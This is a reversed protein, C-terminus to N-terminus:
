VLGGSVSMHLRVSSFVGLMCRMAEKVLGPWAASHFSSPFAEDLGGRRKKSM